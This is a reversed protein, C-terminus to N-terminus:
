SFIKVALHLFRTAYVDDIRTRKKRNTGDARKGARFSGEHTNEQQAGKQRGRARFGGIHLFKTKTGM